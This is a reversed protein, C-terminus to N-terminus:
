EDTNDENEGVPPAQTRVLLDLHAGCEDCETIANVPMTQSCHPCVFGIRGNSRRTVTIRETIPKMSDTMTAVNIRIKQEGTSTEAFHVDNLDSNSGRDTLLLSQTLFYTTKGYSVGSRLGCRTPDM